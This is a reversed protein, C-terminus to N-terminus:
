QGYKEVKLKTKEAGTDDIDCDIELVRYVGSTTLLEESANEFTFRDGIWFSTKFDLNNSNLTITPNQTPMTSKKLEGSVKNKLTNLVSISSDQFVEEYYGFERIGPADQASTTETTIAAGGAGVGNGAGVGIWHTAIGSWADYSVELANLAGKKSPFNIVTDSRDEGMEKYIRFTRDYDFDIDFTGAGTTNDTQETLADKITKYSDYTNQDQALQDCTGVTIGLDGGANRARTLGDNLIKVLYSNLREKYKKTPRIRLGATLNLYGDFTFDMTTDVNSNSNSLSYSPVELLVGGLLPVGNRVVRADLKLPKVIEAMTTNREVCWNSFAKLSVTFSVADVGNKTKTWGRSTTIPAINGLLQGNYRLEISTM